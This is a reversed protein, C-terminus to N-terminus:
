FFRGRHNLDICGLYHRQDRIQERLFASIGDAVAEALWWVSLVFVHALLIIITQMLVISFHLRPM